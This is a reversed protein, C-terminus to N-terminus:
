DRFPVEPITPPQPRQRACVQHELRDAGGLPAQSGVGTKSADGKPTVVHDRPRSPRLRATRESRWLVLRKPRVQDRRTGRRCRVTCHPRGAAWAQGPDCVRLAGSCDRCGVGLASRRTASAPWHRNNGALPRRWQNALAVWWLREADSVLTDTAAAGQRAMPAALSSWRLPRM